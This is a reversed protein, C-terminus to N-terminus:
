TEFTLKEGTNAEYFNQFLHVHQIHGFDELTIGHFKLFRKGKFRGAFVYTAVFGNLRYVKSKDTKYFEFLAKVFWDETLPIPKIEGIPGMSTSAVVDLLSYIIEDKMITDVEYLNGNQDQFLNGRAIM